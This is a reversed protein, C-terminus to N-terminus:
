VSSLKCFPSSEHCTAVHYFIGSTKVGCKNCENGNKCMSNYNMHKRGYHAYLAPEGKGSHKCKPFPCALYEPEHHYKIHHQLNTKIPFSKGCDPYECIHPNVERGAEVAHSKAVHMSVTNMKKTKYECFPCKINNEDDREYKQSPSKKRKIVKKVEIVEEESVEEESVEEIISESVEKSVEEIVKTAESIVEEIDDEIILRKKKNNKKRITVNKSDEIVKAVAVQPEALASPNNISININGLRSLEAMNISISLTNNSININVFQSNISM